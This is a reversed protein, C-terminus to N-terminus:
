DLAAGAARGELVRRSMLGPLEDVGGAAPAELEAVGLHRLHVAIEQDVEATGGGGVDLRQALGHALAHLLIGADRQVPLDLPDSHRLLGRGSSSEDGALTGENHNRVSNNM